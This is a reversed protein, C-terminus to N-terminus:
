VSGSATPSPIQAEVTGRVAGALLVMGAALAPFLFRNGFASANWEDYPAIITLNAAIMGVLMLVKRKEYTESRWVLWAALPWLCWLPAKPLMGVQPDTLLRWLGLAIPQNFRSTHDRLVIGEDTVTASRDYGSTLPHGFTHWQLLLMLLLPIAAGAISRPWRRIPSLLVVPLLIPVAYIKCWVALGALLGAVFWKERLVCSVAGMCLLTLLLDPSYNFAYAILPTTALMALLVARCRGRDPSLRALLAMLLTLVAVNALLLGWVGFLAYFPLTLIPMLPSHKLTARHSASLAFQTDHNDRLYELTEAPDLGAPVLQNTLDLDGDRWLSECAAAYYPCDGVLFAHPRTARALNAGAFALQSVLVLVLFARFTLRDPHLSRLM